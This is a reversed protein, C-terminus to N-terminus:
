NVAEVVVKADNESVVNTFGADRIWTKAKVLGSLKVNM